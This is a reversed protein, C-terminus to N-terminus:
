LWCRSITGKNERAGYVVNEDPDPLPESHHQLHIRQCPLGPLTSFSYSPVANQVFSPTASHRGSRYHEFELMTSVWQKRYIQSSIPWAWFNAVRRTLGSMPITSWYQDAQSVRAPFCTSLLYLAYWARALIKKLLCVELDLSIFCILRTRHPVPIVPKTDNLQSFTVLSVLKLSRFSLIRSYVDILQCHSGLWGM